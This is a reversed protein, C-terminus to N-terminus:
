PLMRDKEEVGISGRSEVWVVGGGDDYWDWKKLNDHVDSDTFLGICKVM